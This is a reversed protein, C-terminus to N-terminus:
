SLFKVKGFPRPIQEFRREDALGVQGDCVTTANADAVM